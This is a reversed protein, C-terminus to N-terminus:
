RLNDKSIPNTDSMELEGQVFVYPTVLTGKHNTPVLLKGIINLGGITTTAGAEIVAECLEVLFEPDSRGADEPSFEIDECLTRTFAVMRAAMELCETRTMNLKHELHIDSSALFTHVRHLPAHRVAQPSRV